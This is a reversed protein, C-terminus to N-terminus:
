KTLNLPGLPNVLPVVYRQIQRGRVLRLRADVLRGFAAGVLFERRVEDFPYEACDPEEEPREESIKLWFYIFTNSHGRWRFVRGNRSNPSSGRSFILPFIVVVFWTKEHVWRMVIIIVMILQIMPSWNTDMVMAHCYNTLEQCYNTLEKTLGYNCLLNEGNKGFHTFPLVLSPVPWLRYFCLSM